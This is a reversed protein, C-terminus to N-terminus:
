LLAVARVPSAEAGALKLPLAMFLFPEDPLPDLNALNEVNIMGAAALIEHSTHVDLPDVSPTDLGVGRLGAGALLTASEPTLWPWNRYYDDTGWRREWGTRLIVFDLGSLDATAFVEPGVAGQPASFVRARGLCVDPPLIDLSPEGDLFHLPLDIHTGVHCGMSFISCQHATEGHESVREILTRSEDGPYAPMDTFVTHSLDILKM